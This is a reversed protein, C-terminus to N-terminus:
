NPVFVAKLKDILEDLRVEEQASKDLDRLLAVNRALEDDGLIVAYRAGIRNARKLQAKLTREPSAQEVSFGQSRLERAVATARRLAAAGLAIVALDPRTHGPETQAQLAMALRELGIAFGTAPVSAGGLAAVLGDYRGGAAVANQAGLAPASLEFTTRVYYDLGRVIRPNLNAKVGACQLLELVTSLHSKCEPCLFDVSKPARETLAYDNKCDLVRLPNRELRAHCDECLAELHKRGFALVAERYAPRCVPCGLSNLQCDLEIGLEHRLDDIMILLEADCAADARGFIEVGFQYFERFRGKQPREYRLMPGCYFWRQEPDTRDLGAEIYARVVGPTGEPRLVMLESEEEDGRRLAVNEESNNRRISAERTAGANARIEEPTLIEERARRVAYMQKSVIDSTEGSSREYLEIREVLPIRIEKLNYRRALERAKSEIFSLLEAQPGIYDQFGRLRKLKEM